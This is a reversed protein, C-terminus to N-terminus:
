KIEKEQTMTEHFRELSKSWTRGNSGYEKRYEHKIQDM